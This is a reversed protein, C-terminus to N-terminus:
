TPSRLDREEGRVLLRINAAHRVIVFAAVAGVVGVEWGAYGWTAVLAPFAAACVISAVSAKRGVKALTVWVLALVITIWPFLVAVMGGAAAVGKGGKRYLPLTHGLVAAVGLAYAGPRGGLLLGAAAALAGKLFDVVMVLVFARTGLVRLVNSAGPNGSGEATIDRGHARAVLIATPFSGLLWGFPFAVAVPWMMAM